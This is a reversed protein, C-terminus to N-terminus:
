LAERLWRPSLDTRRSWRRAHEQVLGETLPESPLEPRARVDGHERIVRRTYDWIAAATTDDGVDRAWQIAHLHVLLIARLEEEWDAVDAAHEYAARRVHDNSGGRAELASETVARTYGWAMPCNKGVSEGNKVFRPRRHLGNRIEALVSHALSVRAIAPLDGGGTIMHALMKAKVAPSLEQSM